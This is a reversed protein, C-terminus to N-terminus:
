RSAVRVSQGKQTAVDVRIHHGLIADGNRKVAGLVGDKEAFVIYANKSQRTEDM